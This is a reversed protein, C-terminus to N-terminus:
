SMEVRVRTLAATVDVIPSPHWPEDASILSRVAAVRAHENEIFGRDVRPAASRVRAGGADSSAYGAVIDLARPFELISLGHRNM